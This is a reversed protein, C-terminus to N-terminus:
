WMEVTREVVRRSLDALASRVADDETTAQQGSVFYSSDGTFGNEEWLKKNTKNDILRMNIVLNVRYELVNDDNDYRLPDKRFDILEGQLTLDAIGEDVPKLNGDFLFKDTVYKTIETEVFPRYIRYKNEAYASNTLIVKNIFGQVYISKYEGQIASRTTYGCGSLILSFGIVLM